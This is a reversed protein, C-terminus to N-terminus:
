NNKGGGGGGGGRFKIADGCTGLENSGALGCGSSAVHKMCRPKGHFALYLLHASTSLRLGATIVPVTTTRRANVTSSGTLHGGQARQAEARTRAHTRTHSTHTEVLAGCRGTSRRFRAARKQGKTEKGQCCTAVVFPATGTCTPLATNPALSIRRIWARTCARERKKADSAAVSLVGVARAQRKTADLTTSLM